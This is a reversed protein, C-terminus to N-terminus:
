GEAVRKIRAKRPSELSAEDNSASYARVGEFVLHGPQNVRGEHVAVIAEKAERLARKANDEAM